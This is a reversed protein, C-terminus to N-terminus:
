DLSASAAPVAAKAIAARAHFFPCGDSPCDGSPIDEYERGCHRCIGGQVSPLDGLLDTLAALLTPAAERLRAEADLVHLLENGEEDYAAFEDWPFASVHYNCEEAADLLQEQQTRALAIAEEPTDAEVADLYTIFPRVCWARIQYTKSM